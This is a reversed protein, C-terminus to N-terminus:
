HAKKGSRKTAHTPQRRLHSVQVRRVHFTTTGASPGRGEVEAVPIGTSTLLWVREINRGTGSSVRLTRQGDLTTITQRVDQMTSLAQMATARVQPRGAGQELAETSLGWVYSDNVQRPTPPAYRRLRRPGHLYEQRVKARARREAPTWKPGGGIAALVVHRAAAPSGSAARAIANLSAPSIDAHFTHHQSIAARLRPLSNGYYSPGRDTYLNFSWFRQAIKGGQVFHYVVLTANGQPQRSRRVHIALSVLTSNTTRPFSTSPPAPQSPATAITPRAGGPSRHGATAETVFLAAGAAALLAVAIAAQKRKRAQRRRDAHALLATRAHATSAPSALPIDPRHNILWELEHDDTM